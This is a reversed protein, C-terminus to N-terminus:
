TQGNKIAEPVRMKFTRQKKALATRNNTYDVTVEGWDAGTDVTIAKITIDGRQVLRRLAFRTESEFKKPAQDDLKGVDLFRAGTNQVAAGSGRVRWLAEVVAADIPDQDYIFSTWDQTVPDIKDARIVPAKPLEYHRVENFQGLPFVGVPEIIVTM